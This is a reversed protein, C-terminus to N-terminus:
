YRVVESGLMRLPPGSCVCVLAMTRFPEGMHRIFRQFEGVTLSRPIHRRKTVDKVTVLEMPNRQTAVDGRWMAFEWLIRLLGRLEARSKPALDLTQLWLEVPRAQVDTILCDGWKPVLRHRLWVEYARRTSYRTPMKEARYHNVLESVTISPTSVKETEMADRLPKAAKWAASKTPFRGLAKSRRRGDEWWYLQWVKDRKDQM